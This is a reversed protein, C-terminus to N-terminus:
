GKISNIWNRLGDKKRILTIQAIQKRLDKSTHTPKRRDVNWPKIILETLRMEIQFATECRAANFSDLYMYKFTTWCSWNRM